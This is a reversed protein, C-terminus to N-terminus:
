GIGKIGTTFDKKLETEMTKKIKDFIFQYCCIIVALVTYDICKTKDQVYKIYPDGLIKSSEIYDLYRDNPICFLAQYKKIFEMISTISLEQGPFLVAGISAVIIVNNHKALIFRYHTGDGPEIIYTRAQLDQTKVTVM